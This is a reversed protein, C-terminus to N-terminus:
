VKIFKLKTIDGDVHFTPSYAVWEVSQGESLVTTAGGTDDIVQVSGQWCRFLKRSSPSIGWNKVTLDIRSSTSNNIVVVDPSGCDITESKTIYRFGITRDSLQIEYGNSLPTLRNIEESSLSRFINGDVGRTAGKFKAYIRDTSKIEVDVVVYNIGNLEILYLKSFSKLSTNNKDSARQLVEIKRTVGKFYSQVLEISAKLKDYRGSVHYTMFEIEGVVFHTDSPSYRGIIMHTTNLNQSGTPISIEKYNSQNFFQGGKGDTIQDPYCNIISNDTAVDNFEKYGRIHYNVVSNNNAKFCAKHAHMSDFDSDEITLYINNISLKSLTIDGILLDPNKSENFNHFEITDITARINRGMILCKATRPLGIRTEAGLASIGGSYDTLDVLPRDCYDSYISGITSYRTGIRFLPVDSAYGSKQALLNDYTTSTGKPINMCQYFGLEAHSPIFVINRFENSVFSDGINIHTGTCQMVLGVMSVRSLNRGLPKYVCSSDIRKSMNAILLNNFNFELFYDPAFVTDLIGEKEQSTKVIGTGVGNGIITIGGELYENNWSGLQPKLVESIYYIGKLRIEKKTAVATGLLLKFAETSDFGVEAIAGFQEPTLWYIQKKLDSRLSADGVSVWAGKAIGGTSEPTSGTPVQKPLDGDWRYYEGTTEDRLVHNRQTLESDSLQAGQQFSDLTIYGAAIIAQNMEVNFREVLQKFLWEMGAATLHCNGFRDIYEHELSTAWIDLLGSNHFLDKIDSSPVPKQTPKVERM